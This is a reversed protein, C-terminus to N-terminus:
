NLNEHEFLVPYSKGIHEAYFGRKMKESLIRLRKNRERRINMPISEESKVARTNARESYTFVHLYSIPLSKVFEYSEEFHKETEEPYGVILDAGLNVQTVNLFTFTASDSNECINGDIVRVSYTGSTSVDISSSSEGTSWIYYDFVGPSIEVIQNSPYQLM